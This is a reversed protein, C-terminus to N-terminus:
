TTSLSKAFLSGCKPTDIFNITLTKEGIDDYNCHVHVLLKDSRFLELSINKSSIENRGETIESM